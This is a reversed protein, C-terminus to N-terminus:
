VDSHLVEDKAFELAGLIACRSPMGSTLIRVDGRKDLGVVVLCDYETEQAQKLIREVSEKQLTRDTKLERLVASM